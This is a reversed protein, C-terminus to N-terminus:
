HLVIRYKAVLTQRRMCIWYDKANWEQFIVLIINREGIYLSHCRIHYYTQFMILISEVREYVSKLTLTIDKSTCGMQMADFARIHQLKQMKRWNQNWFPALRKFIRHCGEIHM